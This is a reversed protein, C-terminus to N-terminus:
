KVGLRKKRSIIVEKIGEEFSIIPEWNTEKKLKLINPQVSVMGTEPYPITGYLINSKTETYRTLDKIFSKLQRTDNSGFNYAGNSCDKEILNVIGKVADKINLFNWMQICETLNMDENFLMKDIASILLTGDYDNVGYLSFFRPWKIEIGYKECLATGDIFAKLKNKGYETVPKCETTESVECNNLGYEAQSGAGVFTKCNLNKAANIAAISCEYNNNQLDKDDRMLGRTGNWALHVFVDCNQNIRNSIESINELDIEIINIKDSKPLKDLNKSNPRVIAYIIYDSNLLEEILYVGIFSTAGTIVINKM